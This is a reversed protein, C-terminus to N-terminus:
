WGGCTPRSGSGATAPEPRSHFYTQSPPSTRIATRTRLYPTWSGREKTVTGLVSAVGRGSEKFTGAPIDVMEGGRENLWDGFPAYPKGQRFTVGAGMIAVLTGGTKLSRWAHLVHAVDQGKEFPPNMVVADVSFVLDSSCVDSSWDSIRM